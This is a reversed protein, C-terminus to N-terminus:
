GEGIADRRERRQWFFRALLAAGTFLPFVAAGLLARQESVDFGAVLGFVGLALGLAVLVLGNRDDNAGVFRPGDAQEIRAILESATASDRMIAERLTRHLLWGKILRLLFVFGVLVFFFTAIITIMETEPM